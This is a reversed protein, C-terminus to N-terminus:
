ATEITLTHQELENCLESLVLREIARNPSPDSSTAVFVSNRAVVETPLRPLEEIIPIVILKGCNSHNISYKQAFDYMLRNGEVCLMAKLSGPKYYLGSHIVESNRSSVHRGFTIEKEIVLINEYEASLEHAIALGVIGAGIIIADFEYTEKKNNM